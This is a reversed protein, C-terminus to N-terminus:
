QQQHHHHHHHHHHHQVPRLVWAGGMWVYGNAVYWARDHTHHHHHHHHHHDNAQAVVVPPPNAAAEADARRLREVADPIPALLEAYTAAVPVAPAEAFPLAAFAPATTLATVAGVMTAIPHKM